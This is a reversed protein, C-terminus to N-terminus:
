REESRIVSKDRASTKKKQWLYLDCNLLLTKAQRTVWIRLGHLNKLRANRNNWTTAPQKQVHLQLKNENQPCPAQGIAHNVGRAVTKWGNLFIACRTCSYCLLTIAGLAIKRLRVHLVRAFLTSTCMRISAARLTVHSDLFSTRFSTPMRSICFTILTNKKNM